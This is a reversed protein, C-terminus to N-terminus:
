LLLGRQQMFDIPHKAGKQINCRQRLLQINEDTNSGGLALPMIHDLHYNDGLPLGCCACKGHQLNFLKDTIGKSLTGGVANKLARRTSNKIRRLEPNAAMHAAQRALVHDKHSAYYASSTAKTRNSNAARWAAGNAKKRDPNAKAWDDWIKKAKEPNAKKWALTRDAIKEANDKNYSKQYAKIEEKHGERWIKKLENFREANDMQWATHQAKVKEKNALYYAAASVKACAKCKGSNNFEAGGCKGCTKM